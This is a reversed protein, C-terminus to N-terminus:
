SARTLWIRRRDIESSSTFSSFEVAEQQEPFYKVAAEKLSYFVECLLTPCVLASDTISKIIRIVYSSIVPFCKFHIDIFLNNFM